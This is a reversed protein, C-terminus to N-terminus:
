RVHAGSLCSNVYFLLFFFLMLILVFFLVFGSEITLMSTLPVRVKFGKTSNENVTVSINMANAFPTRYSCNMAANLMDLADYTRVVSNNDFGLTQMDTKNKVMAVILVCGVLM